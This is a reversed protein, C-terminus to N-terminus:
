WFVKILVRFGPGYIGFGLEPSAASTPGRKSTGQRPNLTSGSRGERRPPKGAHTM